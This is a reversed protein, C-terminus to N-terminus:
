VRADPLDRGSREIPLLNLRTAFCAFWAAFVMQPPMLVTSDKTLFREFFQFIVAVIATCAAMLGVAAPGLARAVVISQLFGAVLSVVAAGHQPNSDVALMVGQEAGGFAVAVQSPVAHPNVHM